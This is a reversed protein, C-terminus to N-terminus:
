VDKSMNASYKCTVTVSGPVSVSGDEIKIVVIVLRVYKKGQPELFCINMRLM